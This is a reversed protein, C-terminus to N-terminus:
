EQHVEKEQGCLKSLLITFACLLFSISFMVIYGTSINLAICGIFIVYLICVLKRAMYTMRKYELENLDWNPHNITGVFFIIGVSCTTCFFIFSIDISILLPYVIKIVIIYSLVSLLYCNLFSKAHFGGTRKRLLIFTTLFIITSILMDNLFSLIIVSICVILEQITNRFTYIYIERLKESIIKESIMSDIIKDIILDIM